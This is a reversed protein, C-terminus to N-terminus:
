GSEGSCNVNKYTDLWWGALSKTAGTSADEYLIKEDYEDCLGFDIRNQIYKAAAINDGYKETYVECMIDKCKEPTLCSEPGSGWRCEKINFCYVRDECVGYGEVKASEGETKGNENLDIEYYRECYARAEEATFNADIYRQCLSDCILNYQEMRVDLYSHPNAPPVSVCNAVMMIFGIALISICVIIIRRNRKNESKLRDYVSVILCSLIYAYFLLIVAVLIRSFEINMLELAVDLPKLVVLLSYVTIIMTCGIIETYITPPPGMSDLVVLGIIFFIFIGATILVRRWDARLFKMITKKEM